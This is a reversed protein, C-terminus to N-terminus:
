SSEYDEHAPQMDERVWHEWSQFLKTSPWRSDTEKQWTMHVVALRIESGAVEFLVDDQDIRAAVASIKLGRLVHKQPLESELQASLLGSRESGEIAEWPTLIDINPPISM